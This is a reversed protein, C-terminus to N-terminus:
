RGEGPGLLVWGQKGRPSQWRACVPLGALPSPLPKDRDQEVVLYGGSHTELWQRAADADGTFELNDRDLYIATHPEKGILALKAGASAAQFRRMPEAASREVDVRAAYLLDAAHVTTLILVLALALRRMPLKLTHLSVGGWVAIWPFFPLLYHSQKSASLSFVLVGLGSALALTRVVLTPAPSPKRLAAVMWPLALGAPLLGLPLQWLYYFANRAHKVNEFTARGLLESRYSPDLLLPGYYLLGATLIGGTVAVVFAPRLTQISRTLLCWAICLLAPVLLALV